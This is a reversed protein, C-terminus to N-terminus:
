NKVKMADYVIQHIKQRIKLRNIRWNKATPNVRNSLFVFVIDNVPDVWICTGTFGTHGFSEPPADKAIIAKKHPKDFGLGRYSDEQFSTFKKITSEFIFRIGGYTGGNLWMQGLVALDYADSFLGANGSVGGLMAASPDHVNGRLLQERWYKDDETPVIRYLPFYKRPKYCMTKLGMPLYFTNRMYSNMSRRNLSDIASQLLIMNIDSYKYIKRSYVRLRKTDRWLTDFYAKRFYFSDSIKIESTDKIFQNTFYKDYLKKLEKHVDFRINKDTISTDKKINEYFRQKIFELSDYFNKKFIVYPLIPLTPTIGSKHLLLDGIRVNFINNKPNVTVILTDFAIFMSDNVRLTDQYKLIKKFDKIDVYKLTDVNIITDPKINSYDIKKDKFFRGLRDSLHIRGQSYLKMAATTTAAIKTVSALDYLDTNRVRQRKSYTHYGFSKEYINYGNKLVVIQCGPFAGRRIGDKAVSDIKNLIESNLGVEKPLCDSVRIKATESISDSPAFKKYECALKGKLAIGGFLADAAFHQEQKSNGSVQLVSSFSDAYLMNEPKGFNVLVSSKAKNNKFVAKIFTSDIIIDNVALIFNNNKKCNQIKNIFNDNSIDIFLYKVTNYVSFTRKLEPLNNEGAVLLTFKSYKLNKYPIINNNNKILSLSNKYVIRKAVIIQPSKMFRDVVTKHIHKNKNLGTFTKALLIKRVSERLNGATLDENDILKLLNLRLIKPNDTIFINTGANIYALLTDPNIDEKKIKKLFLGQFEYQDKIKKLTNSNDNQNFFIGTLGDSIINKNITQNISDSSLFLEANEFLLIKASNFIHNILERNLECDINKNEPNNKIIVSTINLERFIKSVTKIYNRKVTDSKITTLLNFNPFKDVGSFDFEVSNTNLFVFPNVKSYKQIINQYKIFQSVSDSNYIIGAPMTKYLIKTMSDVSSSDITGFDSIIMQGIQEEASLYKLTTDAYAPNINEFIATKLDDKLIKKANIVYVVSLTIILVVIIVITYIKRNVTQKIYLM